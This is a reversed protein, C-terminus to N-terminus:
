QISAQSLVHRQTHDLMGVRGSVFLEGSFISRKLLFTIKWGDVKLHSSNTEPLTDGVFCISSFIWNTTSGGM